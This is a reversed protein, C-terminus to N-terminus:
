LYAFRIHQCFNPYHKHKPAYKQRTAPQYEKDQNLQHNCPTNMKYSKTLRYLQSQDTRKFNVYSIYM